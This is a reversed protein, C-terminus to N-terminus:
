RGEFGGVVLEEPNMAPRTKCYDMIIRSMKLGLELYPEAEEDTLKGSAVIKWFRRQKSEEKTEGPFTACWLNENAGTLFTIKDFGMFERQIEPTLIKELDDPRNSRVVFKRDFEDNGIKYDKIGLRGAFVQVTDGNCVQLYMPVPQPFPQWIVTVYGRREQHAHTIVYGRENLQRLKVENNKKSNKHAYIGAATAVVVTVVVFVLDFIAEGTM